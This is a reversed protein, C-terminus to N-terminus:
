DLLNQSGSDSYYCNGIQLKLLKPGFHKKKKVETENIMM